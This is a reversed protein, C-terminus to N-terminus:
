RHKVSWAGGCYALALSHHMNIPMAAWTTVDPSIQQQLWTGCSAALGCPLRQNHEPRHILSSVLPRVPNTSALPQWYSAGLCVSRASLDPTLLEKVPGM